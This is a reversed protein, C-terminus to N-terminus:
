ISPVNATKGRYSRVALAAAALLITVDRFLIDMAGLNFILLGALSLAGVLSPIFIKWGSLIWLGLIIEVVGWGMLLTDAPAINEAFQPFFGTWNDPTIFGSIAAYIFAFAIGLRMIFWATKERNTDGNM